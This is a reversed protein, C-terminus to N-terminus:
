FSHRIGFSLASLSGGAVLLASKDIGKVSLSFAQQGGNKMHSYTGYLATRKSLSHVWGLSLQQSKGEVDSMDYYNYALKFTDVASVPIVAGLNASNTKRQKRSGSFDNRQQRLIGVVKAAGFDYSAALAASREKSFFDAANIESAVLSTVGPTIPGDMEELALTVSLPGSDYSASGSLYRGAKPIYTDGNAEGSNSGLGYSIAGRFGSVTPSFWALMNSYRLPSGDMGFAFLEGVGAQLFPDYRAIEEYARSTDRGLRLEGWGGTISVTSRAGFTFGNYGTGKASGSDPEFPSELWFSLKLGSGLDEVGRFGLRSTLDGSNHLGTVSQGNGKFYSAGVDVVGFMTISSQASACGCVTLMALSLIPKKM